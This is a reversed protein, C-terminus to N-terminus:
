ILEDLNKNLFRNVALRSSLWGLITGFIVIGSLLLLFKPTTVLKGLDGYDSWFRGISVTLGVLILDAILGGLFGQWMGMRVFPSRIFRATGGILQMSRIVLRKSFIALRITGSIIFYAILIVLFGVGIAIKIYQGINQRIDQLYEIPYVVEAIEPYQKLEANIKNVSDIHTYEANLKVNLHARLPNIGDMIAMLDQETDESFIKAAEAKSTFDIEKAYPRGGIEKEMQKIREQGVEDSLMINMKYEELGQKLLYDGYVALTVILGMFFLSLSISALSTIFTSRTKRTLFSSKQSM